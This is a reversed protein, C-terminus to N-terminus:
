EMDLMLRMYSDHVEFPEAFFQIMGYDQPVGEGLFLSQQAGLTVVAQEAGTKDRAAEMLNEAARDGEAFLEVFELTDDKKFYIGYGDETSVITAGMTYLDTLVLVYGTPNLFVSDPAFKRRLQELGKATVSDFEAQAWLNRRIDRSFKRLSFAKQFGRKEYFGFLSQSAPILAAFSQGRQVLQQRTYQMLETIIGKGRCDPRTCVGYYYSGKRNQLTVPVACLSAVIEGEQEALFVNDLGAFKCLIDQAMQQTGGFVQVFLNKLQEEDNKQATRFM